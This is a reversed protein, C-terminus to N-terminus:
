GNWALSRLVPEVTDHTLKKIQQHNSSSVEVVKPKHQFQSEDIKVIHVRGGFPTVPRDQLDRGCYHRLVSYVNGVTNRTLCLMSAAASRLERESWLYILLVLKGLPVRPFEGFFSGTRLSKRRYCGSCRRFLFPYIMHYWNTVRHFTSVTGYFLLGIVFAIKLTVLHIYKKFVWCTRRRRPFYMAIIKLVLWIYGDVHGENRGKLDMPQNCPVCRLPNAVLRQTQLWQVLVIVPGNALNSIELLNM